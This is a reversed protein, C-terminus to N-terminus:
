VQHAQAMYEHSQMEHLRSVTRQFEFALRGEPYLKDHAAAASCILKVRHDYLVDILSIFRRAIDISQDSMREIGTVIVTGFQQAIELYDLRSRATKCLQEFDFWVTDEGCYQHQIMRDNIEIEGNREGGILHRSIYDEIQRQAEDDHPCLYLDTDEMGQMRYDTGGDLNYIECYLLLQDIAPLFNARQLGDKYLEQPPSNSTTVLVTGQNFLAELLRGVLMADGIDTVVFEDLCLVKVQATM